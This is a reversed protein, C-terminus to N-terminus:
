YDAAQLHRVFMVCATVLNALKVYYLNHLIDRAIYNERGMRNYRTRYLVSQWLIKPTRRFFKPSDAPPPIQHSIDHVIYNRQQQKCIIYTYM